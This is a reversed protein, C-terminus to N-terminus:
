YHDEREVTYFEEKSWPDVHPLDHGRVGGCYADTNDSYLGCIPNACAHMDCDGHPPCFYLGCGWEGGDKRGSPNEGCLYDLGRHIEEECGPLDCVADVTYGAERGDPLTYYGYGM